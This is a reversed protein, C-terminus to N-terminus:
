KSQLSFLPFHINQDGPIPCAVDTANDDFFQDFYTLPNDYIVIQALPM